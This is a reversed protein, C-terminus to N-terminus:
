RLTPDAGRKRGTLLNGPHLPLKGSKLRLHLRDFVAVADVIEVQGERATVDRFQKAVGPDNAPQRVMPLFVQRLKLANRLDLRNSRNSRGRRLFSGAHVM